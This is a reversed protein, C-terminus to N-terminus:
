VITQLIPVRECQNEGHESKLLKNEQYMPKMILNIIKVQDYTEISIIEKRNISM